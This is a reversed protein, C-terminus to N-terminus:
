QFRAPSYHKDLEPGLVWVHRDLRQMFHALSLYFPFHGNQWQLPRLRDAYQWPLMDNYKPFQVPTCIQAASKENFV